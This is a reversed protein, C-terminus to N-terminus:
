YGRPRLRRDAATRKSSNHARIVGPAHIDKEQSHQTNDPLPRETPSIV